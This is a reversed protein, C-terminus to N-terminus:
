EEDELAELWAFGVAVLQTLEERLFVTRRKRRAEFSANSEKRSQTVRELLDIEKAVEGLEETMVRLKRDNNVIPSACDFTIEGGRLLSRQRQREIWIRDLVTANLAAWPKTSKQVGVESRQNISM